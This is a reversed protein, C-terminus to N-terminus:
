HGDLQTPNAFQQSMSLKNRATPINPAGGEYSHHIRGMLLPAARKPPTGM